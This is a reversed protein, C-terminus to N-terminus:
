CASPSSLQKSAPAGPRPPRSKFGRLTEVGVQCGGLAGWGGARGQLVLVLPRAATHGGVDVGVCVHAPHLGQGLAGPVQGLHPRGESRVQGSRVLGPRPKDRKAPARQGTATAADPGQRGPRRCERSLGRAQHLTRRASDPGGEPSCTASSFIFVSPVPSVRVGTRTSGLPEKPQATHLRATHRCRGVDGRSGMRRGSCSTPKGALYTCVVMCMAPSHRSHAHKCPTNPCWPSASPHRWGNGSGGRKGIHRGAALAGLLLAGPALRGPLQSLRLKHLLDGQALVAPRPWAQAAAVRPNCMTTTAHFRTILPAHCM